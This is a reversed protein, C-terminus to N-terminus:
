KHDRDRRRELWAAVDHKNYFRRTGVQANPIRNSALVRTSVGLWTAVEEATM